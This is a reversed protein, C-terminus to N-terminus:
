GGRPKPLIRPSALGGRDFQAVVGERRLEDVRALFASWPFGPGPDPKWNAVGIAEPHNGHPFVVSAIPADRLGYKILLWAVLRAGVEIQDSPYGEWWGKAGDSRGPYPWASRISHPDRAARSRSNTWGYTAQFSVGITSSNPYLGNPTRGSAGVTTQHAAPKPVVPYATGIGTAPVKGGAHWTKTDPDRLMIALPPKRGVIFNYSLGHRILEEIVNEPTGRTGVSYHVVVGRVPKTRKGGDKLKAATTTSRNDLHLTASM